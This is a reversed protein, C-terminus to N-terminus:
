ICMLVAVKLPIWTCRQNACCKEKLKWLSNFCSLQLFASKLIKKVKKKANLELYNQLRWARSKPADQTDPFIRSSTVRNKRNAASPDRAVWTPSNGRLQPHSQIGPGRAEAEWTKERLAFITYNDQKALARTWYVDGLDEWFCLLPSKIGQPVPYEM